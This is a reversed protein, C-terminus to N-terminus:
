DSSSMALDGGTMKAENTTRLAQNYKLLPFIVVVIILLLGALATAFLVGFMTAFLGGLGIGLVTGAQSVSDFVGSGRGRMEDPM